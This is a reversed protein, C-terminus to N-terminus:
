RHSCFAHPLVQDSVTVYELLHLLHIFVICRGKEQRSCDASGESALLPLQLYHKITDGVQKHLETQLTVTGLPKQRLKLVTNAAPSVTSAM